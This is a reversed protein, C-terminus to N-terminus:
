AIDLFINKEEVLADFSVKLIEVIQNYLIRKYQKSSSKWAQLSKGFLNSGIVELALPLGSAYTVVADLVEQYTPDVKETEKWTFLQLADKGYSGKVEYTRKVGHTTIIIRSGPGFWDPRGVIDHLQQHKDVDDLILLVKKQQLRHKIM